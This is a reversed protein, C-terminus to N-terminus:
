TQLLDQVTASRANRVFFGSALTGLLLRADLEMGLLLGALYGANYRDGAGVSKKPKACWPGTVTCAADTTVATASKVLHIGVESIGCHARLRAALRELSAADSGAEEFQLLRALQNAENGNLSLSTRGIREFGVLADLMAHVDAESRSAPDALDIYIHPRHTLDALVETQLYQWCDTMYPYLSWCTFAIAQAEGCAKRYAGDALRARLFDPTFQAFHSLFALMLKGDEFEMCTVKGPELLNHAAHCKDVFPQLVPHVPDGLSAFADLQFGLTAIGDGMNQTCGGATEELLVAERLGSRGACQLAWTGLDEIRSMAAYSEPSSRKGVVEIIQDVMADFGSVVRLHPIWAAKARLEDIVRQQLVPDIM